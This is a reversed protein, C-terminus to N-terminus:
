ALAALHVLVAQAVADPAYGGELASVLRGGCWQDARAVLARTLTAIDDLTLTFAGLPDGELGDFGASLLILDPTFGEAAADVAGLLAEVYQVSPLSPAMPVNWVTGLPGRDDRAGTGPYWPWQHMSVFHIRPEHEVLAQTGNGHHVDWDVILV